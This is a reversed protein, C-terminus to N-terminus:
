LSIVNFVKYLWLRSVSVEWKWLSQTPIAAWQTSIMPNMGLRFPRSAYGFCVRCMALTPWCVHENGLTKNCIAMSKIHNWSKDCVDGFWGFGMMCTTLKYYQPDKCSTGIDIPGQTIKHAEKILTKVHQLQVNCINYRIEIYKLNM